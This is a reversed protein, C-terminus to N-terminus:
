GQKLQALIWDAYWEAWAEDHVGKLETTEYEHHAEAARKLLDALQEATLDNM